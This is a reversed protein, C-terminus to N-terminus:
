NMWKETILGYTLDAPLKEAQKLYNKPLNIKLSKRFYINIRERANTCQDEIRVLSDPLEIKDLDLCGEFAYGCIIRCGDPVTISKIDKNITTVLCVYPNKSNGLYLGNEYQNMKLHDKIHDVAGYPMSTLSDPISISELSGCFATSYGFYNKEITKVGKPIILERVSSGSFASDGISTVGDPIIVTSENGLYKLLKTGTVAFENSKPSEDKKKGNRRLYKEYMERSEDSLEYPNNLRFDAIDAKLGSKTISKFNADFVSLNFRVKGSTNCTKRLIDYTSKGDSYVPARYKISGDVNLVTCDCAVITEKANVSSLGLIGLLDTKLTEYVAIEKVGKFAYNYIEKVGAPIVVKDFGCKEFASIGISTVSDPIAVGMLGTCNYFAGAAICKTGPRIEFNGSISEKVKILYNGIYLVGNKWNSEDNYYGTNDFASLGIHNISDPIIINTLGSCNMFAGRSIETVSDPITVSTLGICNYFANLYIDKVGDPIVVDGGSGTYKKLVGNEIVFDSNSM